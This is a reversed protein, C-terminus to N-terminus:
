QKLLSQEKFTDGAEDLQKVINDVIEAKMRKNNVMAAKLMQNDPNKAYEKEIAALNADLNELQKGAIAKVRQAEQDNLALQDIKKINTSTIADYYAFVEEIEGSISIRTVEKVVAGSLDSFSYRFLVVSASVFVLIVAAVRAIGWWKFTVPVEVPRNDLKEIFRNKHGLPPIQDDFFDQNELIKKELFTM